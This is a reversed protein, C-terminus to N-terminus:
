KEAPRPKLEVTGVLKNTADRGCGVAEMTGKAPGPKEPMTISMTVSGECNREVMHYPFALSMVGGKVTGALKGTIETPSTIHMEGSVRGKVIEMRMTGTFLDEADVVVDHTVGKTGAGAKQATQGGASALFTVSALTALVVQEIM